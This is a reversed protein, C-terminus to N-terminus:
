RRGRTTERHADREEREKKKSKTQRRNHEGRMEQFERGVGVTLDTDVRDHECHYRGSSMTGNIQVM